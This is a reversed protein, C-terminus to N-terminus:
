ELIARMIFGNSLVLSVFAHAVIFKNVIIVQRFTRTFSYTCIIM